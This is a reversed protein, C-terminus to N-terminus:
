LTKPHHASPRVVAPLENQQQLEEQQVPLLTLPWSVLNVGQMQARTSTSHSTQQALRLSKERVNADASSAFYLKPGTTGHRCHKMRACTSFCSLAAIEVSDLASNHICSAMLKPIGAM